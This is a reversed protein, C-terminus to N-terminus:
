NELREVFIQRWEAHPDIRANMGDTKISNELKQGPAADIMYIGGRALALLKKGDASLTFQGAGAVVTQEEKKEASLDFLQITPPESVGRSSRRSYILQGKANVALGGFNGQKIPLLIVRRDAGDFEIKLPETKKDQDKAAPDADADKASDKSEQSKASKSDGAADKPADEKRDGKGPNNKRAHNKKRRRRKKKQQRSDDAKSDAKDKEKGGNEVQGAEKDKAKDDAKDEKGKAEDDKAEGFKEEDSKPALPHKIDSRLPLALLVETDSYIFTTGVDEYKPSDFARNSSFYLYDGKRDFTPSEENYFGSTLQAAEDSALSYAWIASNQNERSISRSYAIWNSDHSWSVGSRNGWPDSDVRRTRKDDLSYIWITLTKDQFAIHQSDPSWVPDYRFCEGNNTLQLTEGLGDSQTAYLEYEGSADGFYAIWKGDPSWAPSREAVGSTRTLNRPAGNKAPATWIDGRAEVAVRQGTPSIDGGNILSSVDMWQPRLKPRDGPIRVEVSRPEGDPLAVLYLNAGNQVVIEGQGDVGPGMGPWKCDFRDFRTVQRREGSDTDYAWINLRHEEGQDSLYYVTRGAWMPISDTGEWDTIQKSEHTKLNLLWIDSAMGGRYRKWTRTDRSYPTYALWDGDGSIAANDGYPVPLPKLEPHTPDIQFLQMMRGLGAFGNSSFVLSKGDPTWDWLMENAPHYTVRQPAGGATPMMYLDRGGEYNGVFAISKGDPSFRPFLEDGPPSALPSATGGDRSVTWLDGGYSFVLQDASVDAYRLMGANPTTQALATPAAVAFSFFCLSLIERVVRAHRASVLM